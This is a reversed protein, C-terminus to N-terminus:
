SLDVLEQCLKGLHSVGFLCTQHRDHVLVCLEGRLDGVELSLELRRLGGGASVLAIQVPSALLELLRAALDLLQVVLEPREFLELVLELLMAVSLVLGVALDPHLSASALGVLLELGALLLEGFFLGSDGLVSGVEHLENLEAGLRLAEVLDLFLQSRGLGAQDRGLALEVVGLALHGLLLKRDGFQGFSELLLEVLRAVLDLNEATFCGLRFGLTSLGLAFHALDGGVELGALTLVHDEVPRVVRQLVVQGGAGLVNSDEVLSELRLSLM